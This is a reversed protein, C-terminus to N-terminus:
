SLYVLYINGIIHAYDSIVLYIDDILHLYDGIVASLNYDIIYM